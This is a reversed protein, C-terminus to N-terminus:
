PIDAGPFFTAEGFRFSIASQKSFIRTFKSGFNNPVSILPASVDIFFDNMASRFLFAFRFDIAIFLHYKYCTTKLNHMSPLQKLQNRSHFKTPVIGGDVVTGRFSNIWNIPQFMQLLNGIRKNSNM